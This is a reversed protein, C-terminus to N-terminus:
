DDFINNFAKKLEEIPYIDASPEGATFSLAHNEIALKIMVGIESPELREKAMTSLKNSFDYTKEM